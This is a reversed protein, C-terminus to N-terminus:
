KQIKILMSADIIGGQVASDMNQIKGGVGISESSFFLPYCNYNEYLLKSVAETSYENLGLKSHYASVIGTPNSFPLIIIDYYDGYYSTAITGLPMEEINIFCSLKQQWHAAINKAVQRSVADAPHKITIGDMSYGDLIKNKYIEASAEPQYQIYESVTPKSINHIIEPYISDAVTQNASLAAKFSESNVSSLLANRVSQDVSNGIFLSYCTNEINVTNFDADTVPSFEEESLYVLDTNDNELMSLADEEGCTFYVRMSNAEFKGKYELNKALRILFKLDTNWKRIYYSGNAPTTELTLGYKGKCGEFFEKNCPMTIASTLVKEFDADDRELEIKLTYKDVATVGLASFDAKGNAISEAGSIAFLSNAFPAKTEPSVARRLAFLYDQATVPTGDTWEANKDLKFTYLLGNKEYSEAGSPVINGDSDYRLLTDFISRVVTLEEDTDALQPDLCTPRNNFDIYIYSDKYSEGCASLSLAILIIVSFLSIIKTIKM